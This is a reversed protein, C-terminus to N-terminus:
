ENSKISNQIIEKSKKRLSEIFDGKKGGIQQDNM